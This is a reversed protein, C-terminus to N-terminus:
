LYLCLPQIGPGLVHWSEIASTHNTGPWRCQALCQSIAPKGTEINKKETSNSENLRLNYKVSYSFYQKQKFHYLEKSSHLPSLNLSRM